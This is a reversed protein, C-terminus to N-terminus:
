AEPEKSSVLRRFRPDTALVQFDEDERAQFRNEPRLIIAAKLQELAAETSGQLALAAALAYRIEDRDPAMNAARNLHETAKDLNRANLEVVGLNYYDEATRFTPPSTGLRQECLRLHVRARDAVHEVAGTALKAFIEKAKEYNQKHFHRIAADYSKLAAQLEAEDYHRESSRSSM